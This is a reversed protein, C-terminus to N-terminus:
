FLVWFGRLLEEPVLVHGSPRASGKANVLTHHQVGPTQEPAAAMASVQIM